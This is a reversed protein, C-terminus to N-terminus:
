TALVVRAVYNHLYMTYYGRVFVPYLPHFRRCVHCTTNILMNLISLGAFIVLEKNPSYFLVNHICIYHLKCCVHEHVYM